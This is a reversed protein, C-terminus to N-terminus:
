DEDHKALWTKMSSDVEAKVELAEGTFLFNDGEGKELVIRKNVKLIHKTFDINISNLDLKMKQHLHHKTYGLIKSLKRQEFTDNATWSM